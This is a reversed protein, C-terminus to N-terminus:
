DRDRVDDVQDITACPSPCRGQDHSSSFWEVVGDVVDGAVTSARGRRRIAVDVRVRVRTQDTSRKM